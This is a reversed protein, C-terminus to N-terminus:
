AQMAVEKRIKEGTQKRLTERELPTHGKFAGMGLLGASRGKDHAAM